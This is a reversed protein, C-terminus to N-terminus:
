RPDRILTSPRLRRAPGFEATVLFVKHTKTDLAMTRAGRQTQVNDIVKFTQPSHGKECDLPLREGTPSLESHRCHSRGRSLCCPFVTFRSVENDRWVALWFARGAPSSERSRAGARLVEVPTEMISEPGVVVYVQGGGLAIAPGAEVAESRPLSLLTESEVVGLLHRRMAEEAEPERGLPQGLITM